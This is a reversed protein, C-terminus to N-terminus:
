KLEAASKAAIVARLMEDIFNNGYFLGEDTFTIKSESVSILGEKERQELLPALAKKLDLGLKESCITLDVSTKQMDNILRDLVFYEEKFVRGTSSFPLEDSIYSFNEKNRYVYREINGGAGSGVAICSGGGHRIRMYDYKDLGNRILKTLEFPKYGVEKLGDVIQYFFARERNIDNMLAVDAETIKKVIPTGEHLMLSYFSIGALSLSKVTEIDNKLIEETEGPYNYIIDIGVNKFIEVAKKIRAAANEGSGRRGLLKRGVDNFTQVGISLRNVGCEKLVRMMEDTLETISTELSIEANEAISFNKRISSFVRGMQEPTLATPTGGGFNIANIEGETWKFSSIRDMYDSLYKDYERRKLKDPRHFPCFTCVKNCFPVHFYIVRKVDSQASLVRRLYDAKDESDRYADKLARSADHHSRYRETYM